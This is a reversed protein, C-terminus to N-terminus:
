GPIFIGAARIARILEQTAEEMLEVAEKHDDASARAAAKDKYRVASGVLDQIKRAITPVDQKEQTLMDVLMRHADYRDLEYRYEEAKSAFHLSRVLTDGQRMKGVSAKVILYAQELLIRAKDIDSESLGEAQKLLKEAQAIHSAEEKEASKEKSVRLQAELLAKASRLRVAFDRQKKKAAVEEPHAQRTATFLLRTTQGLLDNAKSYDGARYAEWAKEHMERAQQRGDESGNGKIQQAASSSELLTGVSKLRRELSAPDMRTAKLAAAAGQGQPEAGVAGIPMGLSLAVGLLLAAKRSM